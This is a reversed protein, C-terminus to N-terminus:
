SPCGGTFRRAGSARAASRRAAHEPPPVLGAPKMAVEGGAVGDGEGLMEGAGVDVLTGAVAVFAGGVFVFAGAGGVAM